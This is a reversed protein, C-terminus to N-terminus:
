RVRVGPCPGPAFVIILKCHLRLATLPLPTRVKTYVCTNDDDLMNPTSRLTRVSYRLGEIGEFRLIKYVTELYDNKQWKQATPFWPLDDSTAESSLVEESSPIDPLRAWDATSDRAALGRVHNGVIAAAEAANPPM